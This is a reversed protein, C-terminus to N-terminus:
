FIRFIFYCVPVVFLASDFRDLVGGHGPLLNGFDKIKCERKIYSLFLDGLQGFISGLLGMLIMALWNMQMGGATLIFGYVVMGIIGGAIGGFMGEVSKKPSIAPALKHKGFASGVFYAMADSCWAAIFPVVVLKRGNKLRLIPVLLSIFLPFVYASFFAAFLGHTGSKEKSAIEAFFLVFVFIFMMATFVYMDAEFYVMWPILVAQIVCAACIIKNKVLKANCALEYAMFFCAASELIASAWIPLLFLVACCFTLGVVAVGLRVGLTQYKGKTKEM